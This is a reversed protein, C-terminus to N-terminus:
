INKLNNIIHDSIINRAGKNEYVFKKAISGSEKIQTNNELLNELTKDFEVQNNLTFAGGKKILMKAEYFKHYNPGFIVPLGYTAAELINHIGKGFGGGIYAISGYQYISGLIGITDIILIKYKSLDIDENLESYLIISNNFRLIIQEIHKKHIEHPAIILKIQKEDKNFYSSLLEEDKSWTSGAIVTKKNDIFKKILPFQQTNKALHSVRDFRTDGSKEGTMYGINKLLEVSEEDQVFIKNFAFIARKYFTGYSKFFLQNPRFVASMLVLYVNQKKLEMLYNIWFEYKVFIAIRPNIYKVFKKANSSTDLPLYFIYDADQYNKRIEFGSPSFFTLVICYETIQSHIFEIIPRGQEFEGLSSCHIWIKPRIEDKIKDSIINFINKRGKLWIKAKINFLSAIRIGFGYFFIGLNYLLNM